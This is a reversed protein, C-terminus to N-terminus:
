QGGLYNEAFFAGYAEVDKNKYLTSYNAPSIAFAPYDRDNIGALVDMNGRFLAYFEMAKAKTDFFTMLVVQHEPDLFSNTIQMGAQRFYTNNFDSLKTKIENIDNGKNPIIIAFYHQGQEQKFESGSPPPKSSGQEATRDLTNLLEQAAKAEDTGPFTSVVEALGARFGSVDRMGGIAMARLLFYKPRFLNRPEEQIVRNAAAIVRGYSYQRFLQYVEKYALEEEAKRLDDAQLINPDRVLRAFESTPYRDLIINAYMQSGSGDPSFYNTTLEKELYIRYLQYFSEPTYRCEDFRSQLNEFSEIANDADKLQEKFIMGSKYLASCIRENSAEIAAEDRPLGKTYFAQDRWEEDGKQTEKEREVEALEKEAEDALSEALASGSKDKRRWDDELKRAGWKKRYEVAGRAMQPPDYFYWAGRTTPSGAVPTAPRGSPKVTEVGRSESEQRERDAELEERDRIMRRIRKELEKEDLGALLQLSDELAIINLQEVLDGLVNARTDVERFRVHEEAIVSRTSDYYPQALGYERDDFYIDALKLFTKSQQKQDTTNLRASALLHDIAGPKNREKLDLDALAYHIMDFHDVHKADRLMRNLRQRLAKSDGRSFATAQLIQAHFAMEYPPNMRGVAAFQQIAKDQLGKREYLQALIFTRRVRERRNKTVSIAHELHVIADDVKGRRLELEAQVTSLEGHDFRKPLKKEDRVKDLASQAKSYQELEIATRALWVQSELQRNSGKFRRSIYTFGREAEYYNRKYFHSKAIVFWADDIWANREKGKIDMSHREIVLSAKEICIELAPVANRAQAETGYVFLPLVEDYNDVYTDEINLIVETLREDAHFWGNFRTNMGHFRRNLTADKETSCGVAVLLLALYLLSRYPKLRFVFPAHIVVFPRLYKM